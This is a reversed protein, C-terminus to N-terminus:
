YGRVACCLARIHAPTTGCCGGLISVGIRKMELFFPAMMEPTEPYVVKGERIEPVGANAQILLPVDTLERLLRALEVMPAIGNGCNAGVVDAGADLLGNVAREPTVGMTTAWGRRGKTFVFTALVPCNTYSRVTQVALTAEDLAAMTEVLIGDVGGAALAQAQEAFAGAMAESSVDGLPELFEGTPGISGIVLHGSPAASRALVAARQNLERVRDGYGYHRLRFVNGGFSNTLVLDSGAAFYAAAMGQVVAPATLNLVEPCEGARLGHQQLYTGTAGDSILVDGAEIRDILSHNM